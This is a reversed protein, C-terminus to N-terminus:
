FFFYLYSKFSLKVKFGQQQKKGWKWHQKKEELQVWKQRINKELGSFPFCMCVQLMNKLLECCLITYFSLQLPCSSLPM